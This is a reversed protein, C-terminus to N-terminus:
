LADPLDHIYSDKITKLHPNCIGDRPYTDPMVLSASHHRVTIVLSLSKLKCPAVMISEKEQM